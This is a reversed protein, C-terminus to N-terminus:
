KTRKQCTKIIKDKQQSYKKNTQFKFKNFVEKFSIISSFVASFSMNILLITFIEVFIMSFEACRVPYILGNKLRGMNIM